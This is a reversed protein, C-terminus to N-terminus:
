FYWYCFSSFFFKKSFLINGTMASERLCIGWIHPMRTSHRKVDIYVNPTSLMYASIKLFPWDPWMQGKCFVTATSHFHLDTQGGSYNRKLLHQFPHKSILIDTSKQDRRIERVVVTGPRYSYHKNM